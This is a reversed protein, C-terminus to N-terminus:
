GHARQRVIAPTRHDLHCPVAHRLEIERQIRMVSMMMMTKRM